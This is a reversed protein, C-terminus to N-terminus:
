PGSALDERGHHVMGEFQSGPRLRGGKLQGKDPIPDVLLTVIYNLIPAQCLMGGTQVLPQSYNEIGILLCSFTSFASSYFFREM